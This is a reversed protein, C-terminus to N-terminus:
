HISMETSSHASGSTLTATVEQDLQATNEDNKMFPKIITMSLIPPSM